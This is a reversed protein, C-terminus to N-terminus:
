LSGIQALGVREADTMATGLNLQLRLSDAVDSTSDMSATLSDGSHLLDSQALVVYQRTAEQSAFLQNKVAIVQRTRTRLDNHAGRLLATGIAGTLFLLAIVSGFGLLVRRRITWASWRRTETAVGSM